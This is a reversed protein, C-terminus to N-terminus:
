WFSLQQDSQKPVINITLQKKYIDHLSERV